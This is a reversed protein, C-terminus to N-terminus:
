EDSLHGKLEKVVAKWEAREKPDAHVATTLRYNEGCGHLPARLGRWNKAAWPITTKQLVGCALCPKEQVVLDYLRCWEDLPTDPEIIM